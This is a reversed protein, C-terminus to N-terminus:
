GEHQLERGTQCGGFHEINGTFLRWVLDAFAGSPEGDLGVVEPQDGFDVKLANKCDNFMFFRCEDNDIGNLGDMGGFVLTGCAGNGLDPLTRGGEDSCGLLLVDDEHDDAMDGFLSCKGAGFGKFVHDVGDQM